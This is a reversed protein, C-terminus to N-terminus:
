QHYSLTCSSTIASKIADGERDIYKSEVTLSDIIESTATVLGSQIRNVTNNYHTQRSNLRDIRSELQNHEEILELRTFNIRSASEDRINIRTKIESVITTLVHCLSRREDDLFVIKSNL